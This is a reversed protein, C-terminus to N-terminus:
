PARELIEHGMPLYNLKHEKTVQLIEYDLILDPFNNRIKRLLETFEEQNEVETEIELQWEGLIEVLYVVFNFQSCFSYLRKEDEKTPNNLKILAKYFKRNTKELNILVRHSQIIKRKELSQIRSKVTHYTVDLKKAIEQNNQRCNESLQILIDVDLKDLEESKPEFGYYKQAFEERKQDLLYDRKFHYNFISSSVNYKSFYQGLDEKIKKFINNLHINNRATFVAELDWSGSTSVFWLVHNHNKFYNIIEEEKKADVNKFRFYIRYTLYGLHHIDIVSMFGLLVNENILKKIRYNLNQKSLNTNSALESLSMRANYDLNWLIKYDIKDLSM